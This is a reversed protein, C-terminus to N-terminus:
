HKFGNRLNMSLGLQDYASGAQYWARGYSLALKGLQVGAGISFGNLGNGSNGINLERRRLFNYGLWAQVKDGPYITCGIVLHDILKGATFRKDTSNAYGNSNNFSTDDYRINFQHLKQVTLSLGFPSGRFRRTIGAQLDFPLQDSTSGQYPKLQFGINKLLFSASIANSTDTYHVGADFAIGDSRYQGYSSHIYKLALGYDWKVLYHRSAGAQVYWDVAHFRGLLNGAADTATTSGYDFYGLGGIFNTNWQESYLAGALHFISTSAYFHNFVLSLQGDMDRNLQSINSLAMGPDHSPHSVNIGGLASLQPTNPVTLFNFVSNGGLVQTRADVSLVLTIIYVLKRL